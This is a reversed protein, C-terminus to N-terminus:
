SGVSDSFFNRNYANMAKSMGDRAWATCAEAAKQLLMPMMKEEEMEFARLVYSAMSEHTHADPMTDGGVGFRLRPIEETEMQYIVSGLGNHGGDSGEPRLRLTGFPIQFDDFVILVDKPSLSYFRCLDRVATGSNNMFTTPMALVVEDDELRFIGRYYDGDGPVLLIRREAAITEVVRFGINHRTPAYNSGPNGLGVICKM